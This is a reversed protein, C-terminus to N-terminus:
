AAKKEAPDVKVYSSLLGELVRPSTGAQLELVGAVILEMYGAEEATMRKLKNAAPLYVGNALFVGWFTAVFAGAIGHGILEPNDLHSMTAMLGFVAGIIGFTPAFVGANTWFGQPGKHREKKAQIETRLVRKLMSPDTGDVAMQVAKRFFPDDITKAESELALLGGTRATNTMAVLKAITDTVPFAAGKMVKSFTKLGAMSEQFPMAILTAGMSGIVVILLAPINTFLAVPDAGKLIAGVFVGLIAVPLGILSGKEVTDGETDAPGDV